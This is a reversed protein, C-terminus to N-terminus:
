VGFNGWNSSSYQADAETCETTQTHTNKHKHTLSLPSLLSIEGEREVFPTYTYIILEPGREWASKYLDSLDFM